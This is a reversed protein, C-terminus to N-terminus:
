SSPPSCSEREVLASEVFKTKLNSDPNEILELLSRVIGTAIKEVPAGVVTLPVELNAMQPINDYSILSIDSPIQLNAEKLARLIGVALDYSGSVIATPRYPSRLMMKAAEYGEQWGLGKTDIVMDPNSTLGLQIIGDTFGLYKEQQNVKRSLDGIYTIRRHGIEWLYRVARFIAQRRDVDICPLDRNGSEGFCLVPVSSSIPGSSPDDSEDFVLIGDVQFRNFLQIAAQVPNISLLMSYSRNELEQNIRTVLTSLAVREVTPWLVGITHSKKSVLSKAAINPQYGMQRAIELIKLKTREKVLPSDNLAKSVTSYSVGAMRAIDKITVTM